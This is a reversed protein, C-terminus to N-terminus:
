PCAGFGTATRCLPRASCELPVQIAYSTDACQAVVTMARNVRWEADAPRDLGARPYGPVSPRYTCGPLANLEFACFQERTQKNDRQTAQLGIWHVGPMLRASSRRESPKGDVAIIQNDVVMFTDGRLGGTEVIAVGDTSTCGVLALLM